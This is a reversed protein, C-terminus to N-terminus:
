PQLLGGGGVANVSRGERSHQDVTTGSRDDVLLAPVAM